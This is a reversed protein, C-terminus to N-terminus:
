YDIVDDLLSFSIVEELRVHVLKRNCRIGYKKADIIYKENMSPSERRDHVDADKLIIFHDSMDELVGIYIFDSSTDLVVHQNQYRLFERARSLRQVKRKKSSTKSKGAM